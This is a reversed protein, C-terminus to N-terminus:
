VRGFTGISSSYNSPAAYSASPTFSKLYNQFQYNEIGQNVSNAVGAYGSATAAGANQLANGAQASGTQLASGINAATNAGINAGTNVANQGIGALRALQSTYDDFRSFRSSKFNGFEQSALGQARNQAEIIARGSGSYGAANAARNGANFTEDQLFNYGPSEEFDSLLQNEIDISAQIPDTGDDTVTYGLENVAPTATQANAATTQTQGPLAGFQKAVSLLDQDSYHALKGPDGGGEPLYQGAAALLEQRTYSAETPNAIPTFEELQGTTANPTVNLGYIGALRNLAPDGVARYPALDSRTLDFQRRQEAVSEAASQSALNAANGAADSQAGSALASAGASLAAGGIIAAATGIAM